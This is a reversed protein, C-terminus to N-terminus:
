RDEGEAVEEDVQAIAVAIAWAIIGWTGGGLVIGLVINRWSLNNARGLGVLTLIIALVAFSLGVRLPGGLQRRPSATQTEKPPEM